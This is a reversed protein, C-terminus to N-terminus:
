AVNRYKALLARRAPEKALAKTSDIIGQSWGDWFNQQFAKVSAPAIDARMTQTVISGGGGENATVKRETEVTGFELKSVDQFVGDAARVIQIQKPNGGIPQMTYTNGARAAADIHTSLLRVDWATWSNIDLLVSWLEKPDADSHTTYTVTFLM